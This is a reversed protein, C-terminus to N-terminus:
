ARIYPQSTNIIGPSPRIRASYRSWICQPQALDDGLCQCFVCNRQEDIIYEKSSPQSRHRWWSSLGPFDGCARFASTSCGGNRSCRNSCTFRDYLDDSCGCRLIRGRFESNASPSPNVFPSPSIGIASVDFPEYSVDGSYAGSPPTFTALPEVIRADKWLFYHHSNYRATLFDIYYGGAPLLM